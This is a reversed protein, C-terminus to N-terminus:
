ARKLQQENSGGSKQTGVTITHELHRNAERKNVEVYWHLLKQVIMVDM